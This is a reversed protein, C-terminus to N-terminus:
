HWNRNYRMGMSEVHKDFLKPPIAKTLPDAVNDESPVKCVVIDGRSVIERIIHYKREVHKSKQHARPEKAQAIAGNNDCYLPISNEISPVVGLETVFNKIWVAEKAAESAAIYEAETTSDATSGQKSSKWCVVGGNLTFVFGSTSKRDDPDSQFDSDTYGNVQLEDGGYILFKDKTGKLYKLVHKIAMWHDNGPNSQYRSTVSVAYSIDPRTCLMAYMISGLCSAYPQNSMRIKEDETQPCMKKSLHIGHRFPINATKCNGFNYRELIKDIYTSQSLGILKRERDRYLKIGLVYSAEGLDKMSFNKCLYAKVGQMMGIDNGIILIDDVYLILFVVMSGSAKKYVCSEESNKLFGSLRIIEDFRLNWSRSAQKLGYISKKLKCVMSSTESSVFGEPQNMYIEEDLFGNLFATKVDMQWIEYDHYAAIALLIRISKLMAVPSFTEDYDVGPRQTYGKAVLRAKFTEVKGDPGRKRKYVWKCGIPVIGEPLQVLDWVQNQHMSDLESKMAEQWKASDIDLMAERYTFPDTEEILLVDLSKEQILYLREPPRSERNSRRLTHTSPEVDVQVEPEELPEDTDLQVEDLEVQRHDGGESLFESELFKGFRAVFVNRHETDYFLYGKTNSPYGVFRFKQGWPMLKNHQAIRVYAPCGWVKVYNLNPKRGTWIEYPTTPVAKSPIKNLLHASTLLAYGWLFYPLDTFSLMSRVMDLLTRNRRESVGNHQPTGPPTYQALIGNEKLYDTFEGSMYEGGRDSRLCKIYQGTQKEVENRFEKFKEFTESKHKMLYVYGYRSVDDTFTVFYLFGSHATQSMPGCVDSHVLELLDTARHGVGTFPAKTMKGRICSECTPYPEITLNEILGDKVLQTLRRVGIHGLRMHWLETNNIDSWKRKNIGTNLIDRSTQLIYHGHQNPCVLIQINDSNYLYLSCKKINVYFGETDLVFLSIINAVCGPVFYCEHLLLRGSPLPIDCLGVAVADLSDGSGFRLQMEGPKLYRSEKLM